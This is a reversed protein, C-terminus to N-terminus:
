QGCATARELHTAVADLHDAGVVAVVDGARQLDALAGAMARERAEDTLRMAAPTEIAGLLSRSRALQVAEDRAQESPADDGAADYSVTRAARAAGVLGDSAAAMRCWAAHSTIDVVQSVVGRVVDLPAREALLRGGLARLSRRSPLDIGVVRAGTAAGAAARMEAGFGAAEDAGSDFLPLALAPLELAVVAPDVGAVVRESRHVSAPHGHVVGNIVVTGRDGEVRRLLDPDLRPDDCDFPLEDTGVM